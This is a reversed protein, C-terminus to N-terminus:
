AFHIRAFPTGCLNEAGLDMWRCRYNAALEFFNGSKSSKCYVILPESRHAAGIELAYIRQLSIFERVSASGTPM